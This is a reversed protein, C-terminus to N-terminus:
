GGTSSLLVEAQRAVEIDRDLQSIRTELSNIECEYTDIASVYAAMKLRISIVIADYTVGVVKVGIGSLTNSMGDSYKKASKCTTSIESVSALLQQKDSNVCDFGAQSHEVCQKFIRLSEYARERKKINSNLTNIRHMCADREEELETVVSM